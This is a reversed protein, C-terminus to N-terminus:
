KGAQPADLAPLTSSGFLRRPTEATWVLSEAWLCTPRPSATPPEDEQRGM